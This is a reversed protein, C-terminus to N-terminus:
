HINCKIWAKLWENVAKQAARLKSFQNKNESTILEGQNVALIKTQDSALIDSILIIKQLEDQLGSPAIRTWSNGPAVKDNEHLYGTRPHFQELSGFVGFWDPINGTDFSKSRNSSNFLSRDLVIRYFYRSPTDRTTMPRIYGYTSAANPGEGDFYRGALISNSFSFDKHSVSTKTSDKRIDFTGPFDIVYTGELPQIWKKYLADDSCPDEIELNEKCREAITREVRNSQSASNLEELKNSLHHTDEALSDNSDAHEINKLRNIAINIPSLKRIDMGDTARWVIIKGDHHALVEEKVVEELLNPENKKVQKFEKRFQYGVFVDETAKAKENMRNLLQHTLKSFNMSEFDSARLKNKKLDQIQNFVVKQLCSFYEILKDTKDSNNQFASQSDANIGCVGSNSTRYPIPMSENVLTLDWVTPPIWKIVTKECILRKEKYKEQFLIQIFNEETKDLLPGKSRHFASEYEESTPWQHKMMTKFALVFCPDNISHPTLHGDPDQTGIILAGHCITARLFIALISISNFKIKMNSVNKLLKM